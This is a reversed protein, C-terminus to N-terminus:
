PFNSVHAQQFLSVDESNKSLTLALSVLGTQQLIVSPDYSFSCAKVNIALLAPSPSVAPPPTQQTPNIPYGWYRRVVGSAPTSANPVCEYTVVDAVVQFRKGPSPLPYQKAPSLTITNGAASSFAGRNNNAAAYADAGTFGAGLNFVVISNGASLPPMAGIVDFSSDPQTFDLINGGGGSDLDSRYRGGGGTLLFELYSNAGVTTVRVSNPLALRLDRGIRRLATDAEDALEARQATDLYGQVPKLIFVAAMAALIGTITMVMVAEVLTFGRRSHPLQRATRPMASMASLGPERDNQENPQM